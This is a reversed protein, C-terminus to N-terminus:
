NKRYTVYMFYVWCILMREIECYVWRVQMTVGSMWLKAQTGVVKIMSLLERGLPVEQIRFHLGELWVQTNNIQLVDQEVLM